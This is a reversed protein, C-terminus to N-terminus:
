HLHQALFPYPAGFKNEFEREVINLIRKQPTIYRQKQTDTHTHAGGERSIQRCTRSNTHTHTHTLWGCCGRGIYICKYTHIQQQQAPCDIQMHSHTHTHIYMKHVQTRRIRKSEEKARRKPRSKEEKRMSKERRSVCCLAEWAVTFSWCPSDCPFEFVM